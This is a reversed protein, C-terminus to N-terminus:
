GAPARRRDWNKSLKPERRRRAGGIVRRARVDIVVSLMGAAVLWAFGLEERLNEQEAV